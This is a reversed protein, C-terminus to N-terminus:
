IYIHSISTRVLGSAFLWSMLFSGSAPFSQLGFSFPVVSSLIIPHCWQSLPHTQEPLHHLISFGPTGCDMPDCLILCLQAVSCCCSKKFTSKYTNDENISRHFKIALSMYRLITHYKHKVINEWDHTESFLPTRGLWLGLPSSAKLLSTNKYFTPM